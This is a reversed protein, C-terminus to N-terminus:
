EESRLSVRGDASDVVSVQGADGGSLSVQGPSAGTLRSQIAAIASRAARRVDGGRAEAAKLEPVSAVGGCTALAAAAAAAVAPQPACLAAVLPAEVSPGGIAALARVAAVAILGETRALVDAVGPVEAGGGRGIVSLAAVATRVCGADAARALVPRADALAFSAGLADIARAASVDDVQPHVALAQLVAAGEEGLSCAAQLRIGPEPDLTGVRLVDRTRPDQPALGILTFLARSRVAGLPDGTAMRGLRAAADAPAELRHALAVLARVTAAMADDRRWAPRVLRAALEGSAIRVAYGADLVARVRARTEQDFLSLLDSSPLGLTVVADFAPDGIEVNRSGRAERLRSALGAREIRLGPALGRVSVIHARRQRGPSIAITLDGERCSVSGDAGISVEQLGAAEAMAKRKPARRREIARECRDVIAALIRFPM